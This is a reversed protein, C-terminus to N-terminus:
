QISEETDTDLVKIFDGSYMLDAVGIKHLVEIVDDRSWPETQEDGWEAILGATDIEIEAYETREVRVTLTKPLTTKSVDSAM